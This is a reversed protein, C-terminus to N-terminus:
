HTVSSPTTRDVPLVACLAGAFSMREQSIGSLSRTDSSSVVVQGEHYTLLACDM